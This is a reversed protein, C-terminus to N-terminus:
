HPFLYPNCSDLDKLTSTGTITKGKVSSASSAPVSIKLTNGSKTFTVGSYSFTFYSLVANSDTVSGEYCDTASNYTLTISKANSSGAFSPVTGTSAAINEIIGDYTKQYGDGLVAYVKSYLGYDTCYRIGSSYRTKCCVEWILTQTAAYQQQATYGYDVQPYGCALIKTILDRQTSDLERMWFSTSSASGADYSTYTQGDLSTTNPEICYSYAGNVTHYAITSAYFYHGYSHSGETYYRNCYWTPSQYQSFNVCTSKSVTGTSNAAFLSIGLLRPALLEEDRTLTAGDMSRPVDDDGTDEEVPTLEEAEPPPIQPEEPETSSSEQSGAAEESVAVSDTSSVAGDGAALVSPVAGIVMAALLLLALIRKHKIKM